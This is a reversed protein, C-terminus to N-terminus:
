FRLTATAGAGRSEIRLRATDRERKRKNKHTMFLTFSTIASLAALGFSLEAFLTLRDGQKANQDGQSRLALVGLVTGSVLTAASISGTAIVARRITRDEGEKALAAQM